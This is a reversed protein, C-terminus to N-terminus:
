FVLINLLMPWVPSVRCIRNQKKLCPRVIYGQSDQFKAMYVLSAEFECPDAQRQQWSTTVAPTSWWAQWVSLLPMPTLSSYNTKLKFALVSWLVRTIPCCVSAWHSVAQWTVLELPFGTQMYSDQTRLEGIDRFNPKVEKGLVAPPM